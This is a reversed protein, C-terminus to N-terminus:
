RKPSMPIQRRPLRAFASKWEADLDALKRGTAKTWFEDSYEAARAVANLRRFIPNGACGYKLEVYNIFHATVRYSADYNTRPDRFDPIAGLSEPEFLFWRVYDALGEQVWAPARRRGGRYAQVVHVMEHVVCGLAEGDLNAEFWQRNLSIESGAAWAPAGRMHRGDRYRFRVKEPPVFGPQGLLRGIKPYWAEVMPRLRTETWSALNAAESTDFEYETAYAASAVVIAAGLAFVSLLRKM